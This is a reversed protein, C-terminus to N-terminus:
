KVKGHVSSINIIRGWKNKRMIPLVEKIMRFPATLNLNIIYEWIKDSFNTIPAVHQRGACNM